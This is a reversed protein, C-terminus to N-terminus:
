LVLRHRPVQGAGDRGRALVPPHAHRGQRSALRIECQFREVKSQHQHQPGAREEAGEEQGDLHRALLQPPLM